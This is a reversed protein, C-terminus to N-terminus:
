NSKVSNEIENIKSATDRIDDYVMFTRLGKDAHENFKNLANTLAESSAASAAQKPTPADGEQLYAGSARQPVRAFNIANIVGPYNVM